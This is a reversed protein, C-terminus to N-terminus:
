ATGSNALAAVSGVAVAVCDKSGVGSGATGHHTVASLVRIYTGGRRVVTCDVFDDGWGGGEDGPHPDGPPPWHEVSTTCPPGGHHSNGTNSFQNSARSFLFLLHWVLGGFDHDSSTLQPM